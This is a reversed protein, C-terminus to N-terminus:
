NIALVFDIRLIICVTAFLFFIADVKGFPLGTWPNSWLLRNQQQLNPLSPPPRRPLTLRLSRPTPHKPWDVGRSAPRRCPRATARTPPPFDFSVQTTSVLSKAPIPA